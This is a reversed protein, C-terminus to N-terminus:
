KEPVSIFESISPEFVAARGPMINQFVHEQAAM